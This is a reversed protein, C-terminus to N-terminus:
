LPSYLWTLEPWFYSGWCIFWALALLLLGATLATGGAKLVAMLDALLRIRQNM